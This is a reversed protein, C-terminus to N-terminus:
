SSELKTLTPTDLIANNESDIYKFELNTKNVVFRGYEFHKDDVIEVWDEKLYVGQSLPHGATGIILHIIGGNDLGVCKLKYVPCTRMYSHVHGSLM